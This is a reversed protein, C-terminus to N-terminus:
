DLVSNSFLVRFNVRNNANVAVDTAVAAALLTVILTKATADYTGVQPVIDAPTALQATATASILKPYRDSFTITFQGTGTRAVTWGKGRNSTAVIASAGNPAWSGGVEVHGALLTRIRDYWLRSAM